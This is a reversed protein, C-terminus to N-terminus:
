LRSSQELNYYGPKCTHCTHGMVLDKRECLLGTVREGCESLPSRPVEQASAMNCNCESFDAPLISSFLFVAWLTNMSKMVNSNDANFPHPQKRRSVVMASNLIYFYQPASCSEFRLDIGILKPSKIIVAVFTGGLM